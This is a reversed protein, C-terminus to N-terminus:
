VKIIHKGQKTQTAYEIYLIGCNRNDIMRQEIPQELALWTPFPFSLSLPYAFNERFKGQKINERRTGNM